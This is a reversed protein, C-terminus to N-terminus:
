AAAGLDSDLSLRNFAAVSSSCSSSSSSSSSLSGAMESLTRRAPPQPLRPKPFDYGNDEEERDEAAHDRPGNTVLLPPLESYDSDRAQQSRAQINYMADHVILGDEAGLPLRSNFTPTQTQAQLAALPQPQLPRQVQSTDPVSPVVIPRSSPIM